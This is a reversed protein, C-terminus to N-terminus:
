VGGGVGLHDRQALCACVKTIMAQASTVQKSCNFRARHARSGHNVRTYPAEYVASIIGLGTCNVGYHLYQVVGPQVVLKLNMLADQGALARIQQLRKEPASALTSNLMTACIATEPSTRSHNFRDAEFASM